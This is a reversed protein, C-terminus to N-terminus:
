PAPSFSQNSFPSSTPIRIAIFPVRTEQSLRQLSRHAERVVQFVGDQAKIAKAIEDLAPYSVEEILKKESVTDLTPYM